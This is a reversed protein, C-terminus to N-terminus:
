RHRPATIVASIIVLLFFGVPIVISALVAFKSLKRPWGPTKWNVGWAILALITGLAPAPSLLLAAVALFQNVFSTYVYIQGVLEAPTKGQIKAASLKSYLKVQCSSCAVWWTTQTGMPVVLNQMLTEQREIIQAPVDLHGCAPCNIRTSGSPIEKAIVTQM